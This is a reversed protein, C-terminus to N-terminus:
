GVLGAELKAYLPNERTFVYDIDAVTVSEAGKDRLFSALAHVNAPPCHLTIMGSSTPGGFPAVVGFQKGAEALAADDIGPARTRVERFARARGQAAIRDLILRAIEREEAGWEAGRAAILNAESRLMVGDDLVKLGNAALTAGTTTIDVIMEATGAAPAGETAGLSEVIRYDIIGNSSFYNRTLNVYKTAVRMKRDHTVRFATAVDDLDAMTRVDIWAQPVAVVVNAEGFGLRDILVVRTEADTFAERIQDEGTVGFHVAGFGLQTTIDSASLYAVEVGPLGVIAGRYERAGRPKALKLGARAFFAEANDQLRGKSPVALIFASM